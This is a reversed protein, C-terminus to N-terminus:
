FERMYCPCAGFIYAAHNCNYCLVQFRAPQFNDRAETYVKRSGGVKRRHQNGSGHVHDLTLFQIWEEGCCACAGGYMQVVAAKLTRWTKQSYRHMNKKLRARFDADTAYRAARQANLHKANTRKYARQHERYRLDTAWRTLGAPSAPTSM